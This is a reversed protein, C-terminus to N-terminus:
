KALEVNIQSSLSSAKEAKPARHFGHCLGCDSVVKNSEHAQGTHCDRCVSISPMLVEEAKKSTNAKHCDQCSALAHKAHNFPAGKLWAHQPTVKGIDWQPLDRGPTGTRGAKSTRTVQHCTKCTTKEFLSIAARTAKSHADGGSTVFSATNPKTAGPRVIDIGVSKPRADVPVRNVQVYSYFERLMSLVQEVSGHPVERNSAIPEFRLDHCSQCHQKMSMPQFGTGDPKPTHCDACKMTVKGKPSKIGRKDLHTSHPFKLTTKEILATNSSIRVDKTDGAITSQAIQYNFDPHKKAFDTVNEIKTDKFNSKIDGHCESCSKRMFHKNQKNLGDEGQHEKHCNTCKTESVTNSKFQHADVHDGANKHCSKCDSNQVKTFPSSHCAKCDAAWPQHAMQLSKGPRWVQDLGLFTPTTKREDHWGNVDATVNLLKKNSTVQSEISTENSQYAQPLYSLLKNSIPYKSVFAAVKEPAISATIPVILAIILISLFLAWSLARRGKLPGNLTSLQTLYSTKEKSSKM